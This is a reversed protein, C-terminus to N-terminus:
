KDRQGRPHLTVAATRHESPLCHHTGRWWHGVEGGEYVSGRYRGAVSVARRGARAELKKFRVRM